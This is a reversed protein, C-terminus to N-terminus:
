QQERILTQRGHGEPMFCSEYPRFLCLGTSPPRAQLGLTFLDDNPGIYRYQKTLPTDSPLTQKKEEAPKKGPRKDNRALRDSASSEEKPTSQAVVPPLPAKEVVQLVAMQSQPPTPTAPLPSNNHATCNLVLFGTCMHANSEQSSGAGGKESFMKSSATVLSLAEKPLAVAGAVVAAIMVSGLIGIWPWKANEDDSKFRFFFDSM